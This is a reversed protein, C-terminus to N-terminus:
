FNWLSSINEPENIWYMPTAICWCWVAVIYRSANFASSININKAILSQKDNHMSKKITTTLCFLCVVDVFFNKLTSSWFFIYVWHVRSFKNFVNCFVLACLLLKKHFYQTRVSVRLISFAKFSTWVFDAFIQVSALM